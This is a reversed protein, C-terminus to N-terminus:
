FIVGLKINASNKYEYGIQWGTYNVGISLWDTLQYDYGASASIAFRTSKEEYTKVIDYAGGPSLTIGDEYQESSGIGVTGQMYIKHRNIHLLDGGIGFGLMYDRVSNSLDFNYDIEDRTYSVNKTGDNVGAHFNALAYVRNNLYHKFEVGVNYGNRCKLEPFHEFGGFLSFQSSGKQAYINTSIAIAIILLIKKM